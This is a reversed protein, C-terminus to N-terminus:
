NRESRTETIFFLDHIGPTERFNNDIYNRIKQFTEETKKVREEWDLGYDEKYPTTGWNFHTGPKNEKLTIGYRKPHERFQGEIWFKNISCGQVYKKVDGLFQLTARTDSDSEYPFGCILDLETWIGLEESKKLIKKADHPRFNKDIFKLIQPSGSECGFVLRRAGARKLKELLKEDMPNFNACDSWRIDLNQENIKDALKEAYDYTPNVSTNHFLFYRTDYKNSLYKLDEVVEDPKKIGFLNFLSNVCFSCNNPCGRIFFYPLVLYKKKIREGAVTDVMERRYMEIPLGEFDPTTVIQRKEDSYEEDNCKLKGDKIRELGWANEEQGREYKRCFDLLNTEGTSVSPQGGIKYDIYDTELLKKTASKTNISGGVIITPDHREKIIKALALAIGTTSPNDTPMLSFGVVDHGKLDTMNAIKKAEEELGPDAQNKFFDHIRGHHFFKKLDIDEGKKQNKNVTKIALDDQNVNIDKSRLYSTLTSVGIPPFFLPGDKEGTNPDANYRPLFLLKLKM